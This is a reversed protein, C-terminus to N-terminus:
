RTSRKLEEDWKDAVRAWSFRERTDKMMPGRIQEQVKQDRLIMVLNDIFNAHTCKVGFKVTENLAGVPVIVPIAGGAQAEVCCQSFTETGTAPYAFVESRLTETAVEYPTLHRMPLIGLEENAKLFMEDQWWFSALTAHPVRAKIKPWNEYLWDLGRWPHFHAMVRGPIREVQQDFREMPIAYGGNWIQERPIGKKAYMEKHTEDLCAVKDFYSWEEKTAPFHVGVPIDHTWLWRQKAKIGKLLFVQRWSVVVDWEGEYHTEVMGWPKWMVGHYEAPKECFNYVSVQHGREALLRTLHILGGEAGGIGKDYSTDDWHYGPNANGCLFAINM